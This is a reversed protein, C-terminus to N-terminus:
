SQFVANGMLAKCVIDPLSSVQPCHLTFLIFKSAVTFTESPTKTTLPSKKHSKCLSKTIKQNKEPTINKHKHQKKFFVVRLREIIDDYSTASYECNDTILVCSHAVYRDYVFITTKSQSIIIFFIIIIIIVNGILHVDSFLQSHSAAAYLCLTASEVEPDTQFSPLGRLISCVNRYPLLSLSVTSPSGASLVNALRQAFVVM